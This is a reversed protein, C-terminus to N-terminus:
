TVKAIVAGIVAGVIAATNVDGSSHGEDRHHPAADEHHRPPPPPADEHHRPPPPPSDDDYAESIGSFSGMLMLGFLTLAIIKKPTTKM